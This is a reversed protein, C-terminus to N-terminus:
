ILTRAESWCDSCVAGRLALMPNVNPRAARM